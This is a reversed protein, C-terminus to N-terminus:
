TKTFVPISKKCFNEQYLAELEPSSIDVADFDWRNARKETVLRQLVKATSARWVNIRVGYRKEFDASLVAMDKEPISTYFTLSGEKKAAQVLQQHRTPSDKTALDAFSQASAAGAVAVALFLSCVLRTALNRIADIM